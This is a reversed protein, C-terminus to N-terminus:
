LHTAVLASIRKCGGNSFLKEPEPGFPIIELIESFFFIMRM